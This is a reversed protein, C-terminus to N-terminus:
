ALSIEEHKIKRLDNIGLGLTAALQIYQPQRIHFPERVQVGNIEIGNVGDAGMAGAPPWGMEKRKADIIGWAIQDAAVPDTAFLLSRRDWTAFSKNWPGPGGEYVGVLGDVIQLVYKERIQPLCVMAPIFSACTNSPAIHSRAVNNVSGHSM